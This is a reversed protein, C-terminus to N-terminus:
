ILRYVLFNKRLLNTAKQWRGKKYADSFNNKLSSNYDEDSPLGVLEFLRQSSIEILKAPRGDMKTTIENRLNTNSSNDEFM